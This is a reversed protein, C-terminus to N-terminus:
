RFLVSGMLEPRGEGTRGAIQETSGAAQATEGPHRASRNEIIKQNM